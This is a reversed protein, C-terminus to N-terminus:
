SSEEDAEDAREQWVSPDRSTHFVAIVEVRDALERYYICYPFKKVVAKRVEGRAIGHMKPNRGIRSIVAQVRAAFAPGLGARQSEYYDFASDYEKRAEPRLIVPLSM